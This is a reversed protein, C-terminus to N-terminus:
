AKMPTAVEVPYMVTNELLNSKEADLPEHVVAM